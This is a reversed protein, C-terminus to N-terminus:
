HETTDYIAAFDSLSMGLADCIEKARSFKPDVITGNLLMTVYASSFGGRTEFEQRTMGNVALAKVVAESFSM